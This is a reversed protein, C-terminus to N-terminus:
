QIFILGAENKEEKKKKKEEKSGRKMEKQSMALRAVHYTEM